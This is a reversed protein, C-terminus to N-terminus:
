KYSSLTPMSGKNSNRKVYAGDSFDLKNEKNLIIRLEKLQPNNELYKNKIEELYINKNGMKKNPTFSSFNYRNEEFLEFSDISIKCSGLGLAKGRGIKHLLDKELELAYILMGLEIDTLKKFEIKFSFIKLPELFHVTTTTSKVAGKLVREYKLYNNKNELQNTHHWYFKRGRMRGSKDLYYKRLTERPEGMAKLTIEKAIKKVKPLKADSFYVRGSYASNGKEDAKEVTAGFIRCAFCLRKLNDCPKFEEPVIEQNKCRICSHTITEIINRIEGKLTSASIIYNNKDELFQETTHNGSKSKEGGTFIPTYNILSCEIKGSNKGLEREAREVKNGLSVFNYPYTFLASNSNKPTSNNKEKYKKPEYKSYDEQKEEVKIEIGHEKGLEELSISKKQNQNRGM